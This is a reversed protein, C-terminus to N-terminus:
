RATKQRIKEVFLTLLLHPAALVSLTRFAEATMLSSQGTFFAPAFVAMGLACIICIASGYVWFRQVPWNPLDRVLSRMHLPSHLFVFFLLFGFQPPLTALAAFATLQALAWGINGSRAAQGMGVLTVLIAVPTIAVLIRGLWEAGDGALANFIFSVEQPHAIAPICLISAGAMIRLLGSEIMQWDEGFHAASLALFLGLALLPEFFWTAAMAAAVGLYAAVLIAASSWKLQLAQKALAIDFAGHPLGGILILAAAAALAINSSLSVDLMALAIIVILAPWFFMPVPVNKPFAGTGEASPSWNETVSRSLEM